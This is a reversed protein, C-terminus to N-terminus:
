PMPLKHQTGNRGPHCCFPALGPFLSVPLKGNAFHNFLNHLNLSNGPQKDSLDVWHVYTVGDFIEPECVQPKGGLPKALFWTYKYVRDHLQFTDSGLRELIEVELGVEELTERKAAKKLSEGDKVMGGPLERQAYPEKRHLVLVRGVNDLIVCGALEIVEEKNKM